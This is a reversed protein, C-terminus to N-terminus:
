MQQRNPTTIVITPHHLYIQAVRQVDARTVQDLQAIERESFDYGLGYLENLAADRALQENTQRELREAIVALRKARALEEDSIHGARAKDMNQLIIEVVENVKQPQTAAMVSFYGPELGLWNFAHVVYVLQKGRLETHLWGGPFGIGSVVADLIHLAQRDHRNTVTTGPFGIQIAAVQKQTHKIERRVQTPPPEPPVAPLTLPRPPFSAFAQRVAATTAAVDIDGFIALVMNNPVVYQQYFAVVDARQLRQLTEAQGEPQVRYPSITFFTQRFLEALESRWDDDQRELAALMLRRLKDLEDEPFSPHMIVDAFVALATAFDGALCEATVCFSNNGSDADLRGGM